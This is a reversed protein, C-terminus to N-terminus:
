KGASLQTEWTDPTVLEQNAIRKFLAEQELTQPTPHTLFMVDRMSVADSNKDNKALAYENFKVFANAIGKKVQNSIATKGDKWYISLFEGMEDARQIVSTLVSAELKGIRALERTLLLPVHRLKFQSRARLALESVKEPSVKSVLNKIEDTIKVGDVYFSNEWLMHALVLRNLKAEDSINYVPLCVSNVSNRNDILSSRNISSM